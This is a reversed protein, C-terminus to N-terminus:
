ALGLLEAGIALENVEPKSVRLLCHACMWRKRPDEECYSSLKCHYSCFHTLGVQVSAPIDYSIDTLGKINVLEQSLPPISINGIEDLLNLQWGLWM